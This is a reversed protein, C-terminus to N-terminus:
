YSRRLLQALAGKAQEIRNLAMSGSTDVLFIYLTGSRSKFRKYRLAEPAVRFRKDRIAQCVAAARLTADLAVRAGVTKSPTAGAYRGRASFTSGGSGARRRAQAGAQRPARTQGRESEILAEPRLGVQAPPPVIVKEDHGAEDAAEDRVKLSSPSPQAGDGSTPPETEGGGRGFIDEAAREVRASGGGQELPDRRLRHRLSMP